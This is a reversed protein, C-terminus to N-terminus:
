PMSNPNRRKRTFLRSSCVRLREVRPTDEGPINGIARASRKVGAISIKEDKDVANVGGREYNACACVPPLGYGYRATPPQAM